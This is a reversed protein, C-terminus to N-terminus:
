SEDLGTIASDTEAVNQAFDDFGEAITEAIIDILTMRKQLGAIEDDLGKIHLVDRQFILDFLENTVKAQELAKREELKQLLMTKILEKKVSILQETSATELNINAIVDPYDEQLKAIAENKEERTSVESRIVDLLIGIDDIEDRNQRAIERGV